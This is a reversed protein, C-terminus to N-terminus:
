QDIRILWLRKVMQFVVNATNNGIYPWLHQFFDDFIPRGSQVVDSGATATMGTKSLKEQITKWLRKLTKQHPIRLARKLLGFACLDMPSAGPSKVPIEDFPICKIGIESENNALYIVTSKSTHCSAKCMRLEVKDTDKGYLAYLLMTHLFTEVVVHTLWHHGIHHPLHQRQHYEAGGVDNHHCYCPVVNLTNLGLNTM